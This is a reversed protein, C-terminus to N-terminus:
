GSRGKLQTSLQLSTLVDVTCGDSQLATKSAARGDVSTAKRLFLLPRM